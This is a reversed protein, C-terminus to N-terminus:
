ALTRPSTRTFTSVRVPQIVDEYTVSSQIFMAFHIILNIVLIRWCHKWKGRTKWVENKINYVSGKTVMFLQLRGM